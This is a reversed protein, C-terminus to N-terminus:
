LPLRQLIEELVNKIGGMETKLKGMETKLEGMEAVFEDVQGALTSQANLLARMPTQKYQVFAVRGNRFLISLNPASSAFDKDSLKASVVLGLNEHNAVIALSVADLPSKCKAKAMAICIGKELQTLKKKVSERGGMTIEGLVYKTNIEINDNNPYNEKEPSPSFSSSAVAGTITSSSATTISSSMSTTSVAPQSSFLTVIANPSVESTGYSVSVPLDPSHVWFDVEVTKTNKTADVNTFPWPIEEKALSSETFTRNVGSTPFGVSLKFATWLIGPLAQRVYEEYLAHQESDVSSTM